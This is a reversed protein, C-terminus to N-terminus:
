PLDKISRALQLLVTAPREDIVDGHSPVIRKLDPMAAWKELQSALASADKIFM